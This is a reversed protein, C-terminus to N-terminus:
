ALEFIGHVRNILEVLWNVVLLVFVFFFDICGNSLNKEEGLTDM